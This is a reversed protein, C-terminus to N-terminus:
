IAAAAGRELVDAVFDHGDYRPGKIAVFLDGPAAVRSDIVVEGVEKAGGGGWGGGGGRGTTLRSRGDASKRTSRTDKAPSSSWTARQRRASPRCSRTRGM